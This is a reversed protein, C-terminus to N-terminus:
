VEYVEAEPPFGVPLMEVDRPSVQSCGRLPSRTAVDPSRLHGRSDHM